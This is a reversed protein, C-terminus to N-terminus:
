HRLYNIVNSKAAQSTTGRGEVGEEGKVELDEEGRGEGVGCIVEEASYIGRCPRPQQRNIGRLPESLDRERRQGSNVAWM